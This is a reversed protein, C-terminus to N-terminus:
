MNLRSSFTMGQGSTMIELNHWGGANTTRPNGTLQLTPTVGIPQLQDLNLRPNGTLSSFGLGTNALGVMGNVM